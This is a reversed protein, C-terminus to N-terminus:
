SAIVPSNHGFNNWNTEFPYVNIKEKATFDPLEKEKKKGEGM